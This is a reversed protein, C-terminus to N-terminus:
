PAPFNQTEFEPMSAIPESPNGTLLAGGAAPSPIVDDPTDEKPLVISKKKPQITRTPTKPTTGSAGNNRILEGVTLHYQSPANVEPSVDSRTQASGLNNVSEGPASYQIGRARNRFRDIQQTTSAAVPDVQWGGGLARYLQVLSSSINARATALEEAYQLVQRQSDLVSMYDAKGEEYLRRSLYLSHQYRRLANELADAQEHLRVFNSIANDVEEAASLVAEQYEYKMEETLGEQKMITCRIKGFEFLRWTLM